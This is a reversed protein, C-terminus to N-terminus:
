LLAVDYVEEPAMGLRREAMKKELRRSRVAEAPTPNERCAVQLFDGPM